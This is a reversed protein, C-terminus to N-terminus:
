GAFPNEKKYMRAIVAMPLLLWPANLAYVFALHTTAYPGSTEEGLIIVVIAILLSSQIISPIRIWSKGKYLAYIAFAYYPGFVLSDFWITMKWWVPRAMLLADFNSGYWHVLDVMSKPPWVPYTWAGS